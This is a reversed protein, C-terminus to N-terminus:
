LHSDYWGSWLSKKLILCSLASFSKEVYTQCITLVWDIAAITIILFTRVMEYVLQSGSSTFFEGQPTWPILLLMFCAGTHVLTWPLNLFNWLLTWVPHIFPAGRLWEMTWRSWPHPRVQHTDGWTRGNPFTPPLPLPLRLRSKTSEDNSAMERRDGKRERVKM